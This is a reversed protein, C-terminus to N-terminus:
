RSLAALRLLREARMVHVVLATGGDVRYFVRCPPEVIERYRSRGLEPPRRGSRPHAALQGVHMFVRSVLGIAAEPDDLAIYEAIAELDRLAPESWIM